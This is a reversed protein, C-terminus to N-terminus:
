SDRYPGRQYAKTVEQLLLRFLPRDLDADLGEASMVANAFEIPTQPAAQSLHQRREPPLCLGLETCLQSLLHEAAIPTIM